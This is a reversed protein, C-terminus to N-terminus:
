SLLNLHSRVKTKTNADIMSIFKGHSALKQVEQKYGKGWQYHGLV